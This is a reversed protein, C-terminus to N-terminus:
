EDKGNENSKDFVVRWLNKHIKNPSNANIAEHQRYKKYTGKTSIIKQFDQGKKFNKGFGQHTKTLKTLHNQM